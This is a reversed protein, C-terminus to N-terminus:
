SASRTMLWATFTATRLRSLSVMAATLPKAMWVPNEKASAQSKRMAAREARKGSAAVAAMAEPHVFAASGDLEDLADAVGTAVAANVANKAEPRNITIVLVGDRIETLVEDTM